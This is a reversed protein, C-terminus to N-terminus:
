IYINSVFLNRLLLLLSCIKRISNSHMKTWENARKVHYYCLPFHIHSIKPRIKIIFYNVFFGRPIENMWEYVVYCNKTRRLRLVWSLMQFTYCHLLLPWLLCVGSHTCTSLRDQIDLGCHSLLTNSCSKYNLLKAQLLCREINPAIILCIYQCDIFLLCFICISHILDFVTNVLHLSVIM